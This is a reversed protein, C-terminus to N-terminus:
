YLILSTIAHRRVIKRIRGVVGWQAFRPPWFQGTPLTRMEPHNEGFCGYIRALIGKLGGGRPPFEVRLGLDRTLCAAKSGVDMWGVLRLETGSPGTELNPQRSCGHVNIAGIQHM